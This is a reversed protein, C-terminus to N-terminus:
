KALHYIATEALANALPTQWKAIPTNDALFVKNVIKLQKDACLQEFDAITFFHINPTDFWQYSLKKTVPMKGKLLLYTRVKWYGFNPFIVICENGVRLMEEVLIHPYRMAQLSNAMVVTDFSRDNFNGLGQDLNTEIVNVGKELCANISQPDIELGYGSVQKQQMLSLLLDGEGCGLDLVRSRPAIWESIIDYDLRMM